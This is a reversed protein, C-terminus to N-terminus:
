DGGGGGDGDNGGSWSGEGGLDGGGGQREKRRRAETAKRSREQEADLVAIEKPSLLLDAPLEAGCSECNRVRRNFIQFGCAPCRYKNMQM